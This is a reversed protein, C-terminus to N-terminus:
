AGLDRLMAKEENSLNSLGKTEEVFSLFNNIFRRREEAPKTELFKKFPRVFRKSLEGEIVMQDDISNYYAEGDYVKHGNGQMLLRAKFRAFLGPWPNEGVFPNDYVPENYPLNHLRRIFIEVLERGDKQKILDPEMGSWLFLIDAVESNIQRYNAFIFGEDYQTIREVRTRLSRNKAMVQDLPPFLGIAPISIPYQRDTNEEGSPIFLSAIALFLVVATVITLLKQNKQFNIKSLIKQFDPKM